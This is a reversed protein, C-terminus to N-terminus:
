DSLTCERFLYLRFLNRAHTSVKVFCTNKMANRKEEKIAKVHNKQTQYVANRKAGILESM